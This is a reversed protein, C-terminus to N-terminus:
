QMDSWSVAAISDAGNERLKQTVAQASSSATLITERSFSKINM